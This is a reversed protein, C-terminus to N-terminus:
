EKLDRDHLLGMVKLTLFAQATKRIGDRISTYSQKPLLADLGKQDFDYAL